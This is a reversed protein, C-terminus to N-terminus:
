GQWPQEGGDNRPTRPAPPPVDVGQQRVWASLCRFFDIAADVLEAGREESVAALGELGPPPPVTDPVFVIAQSGCMGCADVRAGHLNGCDTCRFVTGM